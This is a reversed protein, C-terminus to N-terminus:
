VIVGGQGKEFLQWARALHLSNVCCLEEKWPKLPSASLSLFGMEEVKWKLLSFDGGWFGYCSDIVYRFLSCSLKRGGGLPPVCCNFSATVCVLKQM